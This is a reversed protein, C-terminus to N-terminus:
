IVSSEFNLAVLAWYVPFDFPTNAIHETSRGTLLDYTVKYAMRATLLQLYGSQDRNAYAM